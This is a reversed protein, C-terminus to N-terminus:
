ARLGNGALGDMFELLGTMRIRAHTPKAHWVISLSPKRWKSKQTMQRVLLLGVLYGAQIAWVRSANERTYTTTVFADLDLTRGIPESHSIQDM